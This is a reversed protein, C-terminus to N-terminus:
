PGAQGKLANFLEPIEDFQDIWLPQVSLVGLTKRVCEETLSHQRPLIAFHRPSDDARRGSVQQAELREKMSYFLLRRLNDDTM